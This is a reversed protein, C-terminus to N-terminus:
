TFYLFVTLAFLKMPLFVNTCLTIYSINICSILLQLAVFCSHKQLSYKHIYM